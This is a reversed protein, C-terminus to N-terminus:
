QRQLMMVALDGGTTLDQVLEGLKDGQVCYQTSQTPMSSLQLASGSVTYGGTSSVPLGSTPVSCACSGDSNTSCADGLMAALDSCMSGDALCSAPYTETYAGSYTISSTYTGDDNYTVTGTASVSSSDVVIQCSDNVTESVAACASELLWTGVLDGGCAAPAACQPGTDDAKGQSCGLAVLLLSGLLYRHTCFRM